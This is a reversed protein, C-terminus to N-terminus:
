LTFAPPPLGSSSEVAEVLFGLADATDYYAAAGDAAAGYSHVRAIWEPNSLFDIEAIRPFTVRGV